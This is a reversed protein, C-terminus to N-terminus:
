ISVKVSRRGLELNIDEVLKLGLISLKLGDFVIMLVDSLPWVETGTPFTVYCGDSKELMDAEVASKVWAENVDCFSEFCCSGKAM